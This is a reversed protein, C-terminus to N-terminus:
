CEPFRHFIYHQPGDRWAWFNKWVRRKCDFVRWGNEEERLLDLVGHIGLESDSLALSRITKRGDAAAAAAYERLSDPEDVCPHVGKGELIDANPLFVNEVFQFYMRRPCYVDNHLRRVPISSAPNEEDM